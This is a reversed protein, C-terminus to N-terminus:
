SYKYHGHGSPGENGVDLCNDPRVPEIDWVDETEDEKETKVTVM